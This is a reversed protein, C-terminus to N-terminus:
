EPSDENMLIIGLRLECNTVDFVTGNDIKAWDTGHPLFM